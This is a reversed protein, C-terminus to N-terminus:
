KSVSGVYDAVAQADEGELIGAPMAGGGKKIMALAEASTPKLDDLSPGVTGSTGADALTHCSGCSNVFLSKGSPAKDDGGETSESATSGSDSSSDDSSSSGCAAGLLACALVVILLLLSRKALSSSTM